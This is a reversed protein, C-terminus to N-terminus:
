GTARRKRVGVEKNVVREKAGVDSRQGHVGINGQVKINAAERAEEIKKRVKEM